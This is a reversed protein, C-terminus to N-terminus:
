SLILAELTNHLDDWPDIVHIPIPPMPRGWKAVPWRPLTPGIDGAM